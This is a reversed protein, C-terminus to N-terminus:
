DQSVFLKSLCAKKIQNLKKLQEKHNEILDDLNKFYNGIKQQEEQKTPIAIPMNQFMPLRLSKVTSGVAVDLFYNRFLHIYYFIYRGDSEEFDMIAYTRQHLDFKGKYYKPIFDSGEGAVIIAECDFLFINSRRIDESRDFFTFEGDLGSDERNSSGTTIKSINGLTTVEWEEDFGKFRIEPVSAGDQPFMKILMAKKLNILKKLQTNHNKISNDLNQFLKSVKIQEKLKPIFFPFNEVNPKSINQVKTGAGREGFYRQNRNIVMSLFFSDIEDNPKIEAVRQNLVFKNDEPIRATVGLLGPSQESLIMILTDKDLTETEFDIFKESCVLNGKVDVSKLTILEYKGLAKVYQEFSGGNSYTSVDKLKISQWTEAFDIFRLPPINNKEEM